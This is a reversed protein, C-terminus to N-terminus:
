EPYIEVQAGHQDVGLVWMDAQQGTAEEFAHAIATGIEAHNERTFAIVAPGAGSITMAAGRLRVAVDAASYGPIAAKRHEVHIRDIIADKILEYDESALAQVMLAARGINAVADEMRITRPLAARQQETSVYIRPKAIIVRMSEPVDVRTYALKYGSGGQVYSSVGLGGMLAPTVNDPHGEVKVAQELIDDKSMPFELLANALMMGAVISAASSGLGGALPINNQMRFHLSPFPRSMYEYIARASTVVLNRSDTPLDDIGYGFNEVKLGSPTERAEVVNYLTLALGLSDFGPGLNASTAPVSVKYLPM